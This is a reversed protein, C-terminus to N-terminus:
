RFRDYDAGEHTGVYLVEAQKGHKDIVKWIAVYTPNGRKLHCHYCDSAGKAKKFNPLEPRIPGSVEIAKVVRQVIAQISPPLNKIQKGVKNKVKVNWGMTVITDSNPLM